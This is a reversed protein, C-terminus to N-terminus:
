EKMIKEKVEKFYKEFSKADIKNKVYESFRKKYDEEKMSKAYDAIHKGEVREEKPFINNDADIKLGGDIAGKLAAYLRGGKVPSQLGLDLVAEKGKAKKGLLLGVLYSAPINGKNLNWGYKKLDNSYASAIVKDGEPHYEILQTIINKNFKRIILRIKRSKLLALRRKYNTKSERKRRYMVTRKNKRPM